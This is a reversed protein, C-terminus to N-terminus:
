EKREGEPERVEDKKVVVTEDEEDFKAGCKPCFVSDAPIHAGCESCEFYDVQKKQYEEPVDIAAGCKRCNTEGPLVVTGCQKCKGYGKPYLRGESEMQDRVTNLKKRARYSFFVIILYLGLIMVAYYANWIMAFKYEDAASVNVKHFVPGSTRNTDDGNMVKFYYGYITNNDMKVSVHGSTYIGSGSDTLVIDKGANSDADSKTYIGYGKYCIYSLRGMHFVVSQGSELTGTYKVSISSITTDDAYTITVDSFGESDYGDFSTNGDILPASVAFAGIATVGLFFVVGYVVMRKLTQGNFWKVIIFALAAIIVMGLGCFMNYVGIYFLLAGGLIGLVIGIPYAAKSNRFRQLGSDPVTEDM